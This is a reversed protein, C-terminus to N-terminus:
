LLTAPKTCVKWNEDSVVGNQYKNTANANWLNLIHTNTPEIRNNRKKMFSKALQELNPLSTPHQKKTIEILLAGSRM